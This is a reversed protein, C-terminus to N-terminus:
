IFRMPDLFIIDKSNDLLKWSLTELPIAKSILAVSIHLHPPIKSNAPESITSIVEGRNFFKGIVTDVPKQVHGYITFLQSDGEYIEHAAFLTYGLFDRICKILTGEYMIPVKTDPNIAKQSREDTEYLMLDLGNHQKDRPGKDGWWKSGSRFLMGPELIWRKFRLNNINAFDETFRTKELKMNLYIYITVLSNM